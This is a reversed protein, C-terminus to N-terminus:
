KALASRLETQEKLLSELVGVLYRNETDCRTAIAGMETSISQEWTAGALNNRSLQKRSRLKTMESDCRSKQQDIAVRADPIARVELTHLRNEKHLATALNELRQTETIPAQASTAGPATQIQQAPAQGSAPKVEIKGGQGTPCPADQFITKGDPTTCKNIAFAQTTFLAAAFIVAIPTLSKKDM